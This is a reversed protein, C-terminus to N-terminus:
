LSNQAPYAGKALVLRDRLPKPSGNQRSIGSLNLSMVLHGHFLDSKKKEKIRTILVKFTSGNYNWTDQTSFCFM